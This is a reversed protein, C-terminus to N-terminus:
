RANKAALAAAVWKKGIPNFLPANVFQRAMRYVQPPLQPKGNAFDASNDVVVLRNRFVGQFKGINKQANTWIDKVIHDDVKRPRMQNRELAKELTTNVFIMYCDYGVAELDKKKKQIKGVNKATGDILLGLRGKIYLDQQKQTLAKAKSRLDTAQDRDAKSLRGLDLSLKAQKMLKEFAPDSNILKLGSPAFSLKQPLGLVENAVTSKGSAPGGGLFVAKFIGPDYVGEWLLPSLGEEAAGILMRAAEDLAVQGESVNTILREVRVFTAEAV